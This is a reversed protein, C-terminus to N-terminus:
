IPLTKCHAKIAKKAMALTKATRIKESAKNWVKAADITFSKKARTSGGTETMDGRTSSRTEMGEVQSDRMKMKIPYHPDNSAKWMETLKIQAAMQNVSLMNQEELLSKTSKRDVIRTGNLVRLMKNQARQVMTVLQSKPQEETLRVETCLQLGYRLKSTWLSDVIRHLNKKSIHNSMRKVM